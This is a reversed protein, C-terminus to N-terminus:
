KPKGRDSTLVFGSSGKRTLQRKGILTYTQPDWEWQVVKRLPKAEVTRVSENLGRLIVAAAESPSKKFQDMARKVAAPGDAPTAISVTRAMFALCDTYLTEQKKRRFESLAEEYLQRGAEQEGRLLYVMGKTALTFPRQNEDGRAELIAVEASAEDLRAMAALAYARNGRLSLDGADAVQGLSAAELAAEFKGM